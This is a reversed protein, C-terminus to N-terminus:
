FSGGLALHLDIRNQLRQNRIDILGSQTDFLSRQSDLVTIFGVLGNLYKEFALKEAASSENVARKLANEQEMLLQESRIASEVQQFALLLTQSYNAEVERLSAKAILEESALRKGDFLPATIGGFFSWVFFDSSLLDNFTDSRGGVSGTLSFRPFRNFHAVSLRSDAAALRHQWAILDWRRLILESPLGLPMNAKVSLLKEFSKLDNVGKLEASPYRGLLVAVTRSTQDYHRQRAALKAREGELSARALYVDLADKIGLEFEQQITVLNNSLNKIRRVVLETQLRAETVDFWTKAVNAALSFRAGQWDAKSVEFDSIGAKAQSSLRDWLDVEWSIDVSLARSSSISKLPSRIGTRAANLNVAVNPKLVAGSVVAMARAREMRAVASKLDYNAHLAERVLENLQPNKFQILWAPIASAPPPQHSIAPDLSWKSPIAIQQQTKDSANGPAKLGACAATFLCGVLVICPVICPVICSVICQFFSQDRPIVIFPKQRPRIKQRLLM